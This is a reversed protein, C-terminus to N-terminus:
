RDRVLARIVADVQVDEGTTLRVSPVGDNPTV